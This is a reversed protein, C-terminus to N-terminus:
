LRALCLDLATSRCRGRSSVTKQALVSNVFICPSTFDGLVGSLNPTKQSCLNREQTGLSLRSLTSLLGRVTAFHICCTNYFSLGHSWCAIKSSISRFFGFSGRNAVGEECKRCGSADVTSYNHWNSPELYRISMNKRKLNYQQYPGPEMRQAAKVYVVTSGHEPNTQLATNSDQTETTSM